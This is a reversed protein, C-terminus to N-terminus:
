LRDCAAANKRDEELAEEWAVRSITRVEHNGHEHVWSDALTTGDTIFRIREPEDTNTVLIDAHPFAEQLATRVVKCYKERDKASPHEVDTRLVNYEIGKIRIYCDHM